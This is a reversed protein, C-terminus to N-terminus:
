FDGTASTVLGDTLNANDTNNPSVVINDAPDYGGGPDYQYDSPMAVSVNVTPSTAGPVVRPAGNAGTIYNGGHSWRNSAYGWLEMGSNITRMISNRVMEKGREGLQGLTLSTQLKGRGLAVAALQRSFRRDNLQIARGEAARMSHSILDTRITAMGRQMRADDCPGASLGMSALCGDVAEFALGETRDTESQMIPIMTYLPTHVPEGMAEAVFAAEKAWTQQAHDLLEEALAVRRSALEEQMDSIASRSTRQMAIIAVQIAAWVTAEKVIAQAQETAATKYAADDICKEGSAGNYDGVLVTDGAAM